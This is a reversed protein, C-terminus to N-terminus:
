KRWQRGEERLLEEELEKVNKVSGCHLRDSYCAKGDQSGAEADQSVAAATGPLLIQMPVELIFTRKEKGKLQVETAYYLAQTPSAKTRPKTFLLAVSYLEPM